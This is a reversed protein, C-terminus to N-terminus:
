NDILGLIAAILSRFEQDEDSICKELLKIREKTLINKNRLVSKHISHAAELRM